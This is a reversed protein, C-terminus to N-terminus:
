LGGLGPRLDAGTWVSGHITHLGFFLSLFLQVVTGGILALGELSNPVCSYHVWSADGLM